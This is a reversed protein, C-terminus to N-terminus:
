AQLARLLMTTLHKTSSHPWETDPTMMRATRLLRMPRKVQVVSQHAFQPFFSLLSSLKLTQTNYLM